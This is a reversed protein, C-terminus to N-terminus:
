RRRRGKLEGQVERILALDVIRGLPIEETIKADRKMREIVTRLLAEDIDGDLTFVKKLIAYSGSAVRRDLGFQKQLYANVEDEHNAIYDLSRLTARIVSRVQDRQEQVRKVTTILGGQVDGVDFADGLDIYGSLSAMSTYPPSLIAADVARGTLSAYSQATTNTTIYTIKDDPGGRGFGKLITLAAYHATSGIGSVGVTKIKKENMGPQAVLSFSLKTQVFLVVRLPAGRIAARMGVGPAASYALDGAELAVIGLPPRMVILELDVGEETFFGKEQAFYFPLFTLSKAPVTIRIKALTKRASTGPGPQAQPWTSLPMAAFFLIAATALATVPGTM